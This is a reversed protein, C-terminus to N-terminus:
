RISNVLTRHDGMLTPALGTGYPTDSISGSQTMSPLRESHLFADGGGSSAVFGFRKTLDCSALTGTDTM